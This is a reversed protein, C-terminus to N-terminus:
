GLLVHVVGRRRRVKKKQEIQSLFADLGTSAAASKQAARKAEKSDKDVEVQVQLVPLFGIAQWAAQLRRSTPCHESGATASLVFAAVGACGVAAGQQILATRQVRAVTLVHASGLWTGHAAQPYGTTLCGRSAGCASHAPCGFVCRCTRALLAAPRQSPSRTTAAGLVM